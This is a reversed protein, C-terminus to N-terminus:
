RRLYGHEIGVVSHEGGHLFGLRLQDLKQLRVDIQFREDRFTKITSEVLGGPSLVRIMKDAKEPEEDQFLQKGYPQHRLHDQNEVARLFQAVEAAKVLNGTLRPKRFEAFVVASPDFLEKFM